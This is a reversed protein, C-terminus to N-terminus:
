RSRCCRRCFGSTCRSALAQGDPRRPPDSLGDAAAARQARPARPRADGGPRHLRRGARAAGSRHDSRRLSAGLPRLLGRGRPVDGVAGRRRPEHGPRRRRLAAAAVRDPLRVAIRRTRVYACRRHCPAPAATMVPEQRLLRVARLLRSPSASCRRPRRRGAPTRRRDLADSRSGASCRTSRACRRSSSRCRPRPRPLVRRLMEGTLAAIRDLMPRWCPRATRAPAARRGDARDTGRRGADDYFSWLVRLAEAPTRREPPSRAFRARFEAGRQEILREAAAQVLDAKTPFHHALAGRSVRARRVVDNTSMASYGLEDLCEITADLLRARM